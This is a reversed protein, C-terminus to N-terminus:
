LRHEAAVERLLEGPNLMTPIAGSPSLLISEVAVSQRNGRREAHIPSRVGVRSPGVSLVSNQLWGRRPWRRCRRVVGVYFPNPPPGMPGAMFVDVLLIWMAFAQLFRGVWWLARAWAPSM